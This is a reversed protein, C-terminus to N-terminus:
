YELSRDGLSIDLELKVLAIYFLNQEEYKLQKLFQFQVHDYIVRAALDTKFIINNVGFQLHM